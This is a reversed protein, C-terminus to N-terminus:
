KLYNKDIIFACSVDDGNGNASFQNLAVKLQKIAERKGVSTYLKIINQSFKPLMEPVSLSNIVGDIFLFIGKPKNKKDDILTYHFHNIVDDSCLSITKNLTNADDELEPLDIIKDKKDIFVVNGDGIKLFLTYRPTSYACILTCGYIISPKNSAREKDKDSLAKFRKDKEYPSALLDDSIKQNWLYLIDTVIDLCYKDLNDKNDLVNSLKLRKLFVKQAVEVAFSSGLNSRFHVPSGHGDSVSVFCKNGKIYSLSSDQIPIKNAKHADGQLSVNAVEFRKQSNSKM